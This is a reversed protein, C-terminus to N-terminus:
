RPHTGSSILSHFGSIARLRHHHLLLPFDKRCFYSRLRRHIPHFAPLQMEPRVFLIGVGLMLVVGAQCLHESLRSTGTFVLSPSRKSSLATPCDGAVALAVGSFTFLPGLFRLAFDSGRFHEPPGPLILCQCELVKRAALLAFLGWSSQSRCRPLLRLREGLVARLANVVVLAVVALLIIMILLVTLLATFGGVKGIEERAM